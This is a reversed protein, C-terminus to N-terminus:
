IGCQRKLHWEEVLRPSPPGPPGWTSRQAGQWQRDWRARHLHWPEQVETLPAAPNQPRPQARVKICGPVARYTAVCAWPHLTLPSLLPVADTDM